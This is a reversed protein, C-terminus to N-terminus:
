SFELADERTLLKKKGEGEEEGSGSSVEIDVTVINELVELEARPEPAATINEGAARSSHAPSTSLPTSTEHVNSAFESETAEQEPIIEHEKKQEKQEHTLGRMHPASGANRESEDDVSGTGVTALLASSPTAKNGSSSSGEISKTSTINEPYSPLTKATTASFSRQRSGDRTLKTPPAGSGIMAQMYSPPEYLPSTRSEQTLNRDSPEGTGADAQSGVGGARGITSAHGTRRGRLQVNTSNKRTRYKM